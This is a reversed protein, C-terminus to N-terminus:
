SRGKNRGDDFLKEIDSKKYYYSGLIKKFSIQGTVRLNQLTGPSIDLLKRVSKSKLWEPDVTDKESSSIKSIIKSFDKLLTVGFEILDEKTIVNSM